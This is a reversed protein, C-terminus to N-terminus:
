MNWDITSDHGLSCIWTLKDKKRDHTAVAVIEGCVQCTFSGGIKEGSPEDSIFDLVSGM